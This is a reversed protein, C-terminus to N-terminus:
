HQNIKDKDLTKFVIARNQLTFILIILFVLAPLSMSIISIDSDQLGRGLINLLGYVSSGLAVFIFDKLSKFNLILLIITSGTILSTVSFLNPEFNSLYYIFAGGTAMLLFGLALFMMNICNASGKLLLYGAIILLIVTTFESFWHFLTTTTENQLDLGDGSLFLITWTLLTVIGILICFIATAKILSGNKM